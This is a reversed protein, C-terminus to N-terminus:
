VPQLQWEKEAVSLHHTLALNNLFVRDHSVVILTGLYQRLMSELANLSALDLHNGPEDLLLLAPPSAAYLLCALTGKLKEGGSLETFRCRVKEKGLGLQALLMRLQGEPAMPNASKLQDLLTHEPNLSELHQDLYRSHEPIQCDGALPTLMGTMVKLLTSKGCGNPGTVAIRQGQQISLNIPHRATGGFPLHLQNLRVAIGGKMSPLPISHLHIATDNELAAEATSVAQQHKERIAAQQRKLAGHSSECREKQKDLLVKAQNGQKANQRGRAQRHAQRNQQQQLTREARQRALRARDLHQQANQTERTKAQAYFAYNGGYRQLGHHTLEVTCAMTDLLERDHSIVILGRQWQGLQTMLFERGDRDLHNSPEDLILFDADSLLAGALAVRMRQGGSLANASASLPVASLGLQDLQLRFRAKLDWRDSILDFDQPDCGGSEIRSLAQLASGLGALDAVTARACPTIQQGLYHVSGSSKRQGQSPSLQGALIRALLTKGVGNRGVLGTPNLDFTHNLGSFLQRSDPLSLSVDRLTIVPNTM